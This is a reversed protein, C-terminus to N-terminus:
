ADGLIRRLRVQALDVQDVPLQEVLDASCPKSTAGPCSPSFTVVCPMSRSPRGMPVQQAYARLRDDLDGPEAVGAELDVAELVAQQLLDDAAVLVAVITRLAPIM